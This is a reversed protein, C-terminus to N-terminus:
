YDVDSLDPIVCVICLVKAFTCLIFLDVQRSSFLVVSLPFHTDRCFYRTRIRSGNQSM